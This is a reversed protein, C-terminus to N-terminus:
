RQQIIVLYAPKHTHNLGHDNLDTKVLAKSTSLTDLNHDAQRTAHPPLM